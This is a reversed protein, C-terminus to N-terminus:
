HYLQHLQELLVKAQMHKLLVLDCVLFLLHCKKSSLLHWLLLPGTDLFGNSSQARAVGFGLYTLSLLSVFIINQSRNSCGEAKGREPRDRPGEPAPAHPPLAAQSPTGLPQPLRSSAISCTLLSLHLPPSHGPAAPM